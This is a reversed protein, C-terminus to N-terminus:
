IVVHVIKEITNITRGLIDLFDVTDNIEQIEQNIAKIGDEFGKENQELQNVLDAAIKNRDTDVCKKLRLRYEKLKEQHEPVTFKSDIGPKNLETNIKSITKFFEDLAKKNDINPAIESM